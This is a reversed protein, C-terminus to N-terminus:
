SMTKNLHPFHSFPASKGLFAALKRFGAPDEISVKLFDNPRKSFYDFIFKEHAQYRLWEADADISKQTVKLTWDHISKKWSTEDRYTYIFKSGPFAKDLIPIMDEKLWPLDDLSDFKSAYNLIKDIQNKQYYERWVKKNFSSNKYGLISFAKGMSTTGTKNYGVCFLKSNYNKKYFGVKIDWFCEALYDKFVM